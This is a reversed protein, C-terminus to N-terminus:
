TGGPGRSHWGVPGNQTKPEQHFKQNGRLLALTKLARESARRYRVEYRSLIALTQSRDCLSQFALATQTDSDCAEFEKQIEPERRRIELDLLATEIAWVRGLRWRAAILQEALDLEFRTPPRLEALYAERLQQFDQESENELVIRRSALGHTLPGMNSRARGEPTVPGHSRAGNARASAIRRESSM